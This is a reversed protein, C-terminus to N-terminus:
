INGENSVIVAFTKFFIKLDKLFTEQRYYEMEMQVRQEPTLKQRGSVQSIGTLGPKIKFIERQKENYNETIAVMEPRPGVISMEGKLINFVQPIEDISTRRMIKGVKTIRADNEQTLVPGFELANDIM